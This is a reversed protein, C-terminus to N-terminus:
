FFVNFVTYYIYIMYKYKSPAVEKSVNAYLYIAHVWVCLSSAAGSVKKVEEPKFSPMDVFKKIKLITSSPINDKDFSKIQQIFNSESMVKKANAWDNPKNFLIMVAKLVTEVLEPPKSYAKVESISSKDLLDVEAMAKELAPMAVALDSEADDSIVKCETAEQSIRNSEAEVQRKQEDAGRKEVVINVLIDECEKQSKAVIETKIELEKSLIEVQNKAEILKSLGNSLKNSSDKLEKTKENLITEYGKVLELYNTATVYNKRKLLQFMRDSANTVSIHIEAFISALMSPYTKNAQFDIKVLFKNAVEQL